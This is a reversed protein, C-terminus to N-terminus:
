EGKVLRKLKRANTRLGDNYTAVILSKVASPMSGSHLERYSKAAGHLRAPTYKSSIVDRLRDWNIDRYEAIFEGFGRVLVGQVAAADGSGWIALLLRLTQALVERGHTQYVAKLAQVCGIANDIGSKKTGISFGCAKVTDNVAVEIESGATVRVRFIDIPQPTKRATNIHDFLKAARAPDDADFVQCPILEEAGWLKEIAVKRHHGDIIHYIGKSNPKTVALTGFMEPDFNDAIQQAHREDLGRQAQAWVVSLQKVPIWKIEKFGKESKNFAVHVVKGTM